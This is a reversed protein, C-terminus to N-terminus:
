QDTRGAKLVEVLIALDVLYRHTERSITELNHAAQMKLLAAWPSLFTCM